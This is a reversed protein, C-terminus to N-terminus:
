EEMWSWLGARTSPMQKCISTYEARLYKRHFPYLIWWLSALLKSANADKEAHVDFLSWLFLLVKGMDEFAGSLISFETRSYSPISKQWNVAESGLHIAHRNIVTEPYDMIKATCWGGEKKTKCWENYRLIFDCKKIVPQLERASPLYDLGDLNKEEAYIGAKTLEITDRLYFFGARYYGNLACITSGIASCYCEAMIDAVLRNDRELMFFFSLTNWAELIKDITYLRKRHRQATLKYVQNSHQASQEIQHPVKKIKARCLRKM